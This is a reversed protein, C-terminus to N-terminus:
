CACSRADLCARGRRSSCFLPAARRPLSPPAPSPPARSWAHSPSPVRRSARRRDIRTSCLSKAPRLSGPTKTCSCVAGPAPFRVSAPPSSPDRAVLNQLLATAMAPVQLPAGPSSTNAPSASSTSANRRRRASFSRALCPCPSRTRQPRASRPPPSACSRRAPCPAEAGAIYPPAM